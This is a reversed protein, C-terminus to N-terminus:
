TGKGSQAGRETGFEVWYSGMHVKGLEQTRQNSGRGRIAGDSGVDAKVTTWPVDSLELRWGM